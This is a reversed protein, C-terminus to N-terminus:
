HQSCKQFTEAKDSKYSKLLQSKIVNKSVKTKRNGHCGVFNHPKSLFHINSLPGSSLWKLINKKKKTQKKKNKKKKLDAILYCYIGIEIKGM